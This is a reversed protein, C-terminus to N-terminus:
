TNKGGFESWKAKSRVIAANTYRELLADLQQQRITIQQLISDKNGEPKLLEKDLTNLERELRTQAQSLHKKKRSSYQITVVRIVCKLTNWLAHPVIEYTANDEKFNVIEKELFEVYSQDQLLSSNM